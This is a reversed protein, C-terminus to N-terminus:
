TTSFVKEPASTWSVRSGFPNLRHNIDNIALGTRAHHRANATPVGPRLHGHSSQEVRMAKAESQMNGLQRASGVHYQRLMPHCDEDMAAEPVAMLTARETCGRRRPWIEPLVFEGSVDRPVFLINLRQGARAHADGDDPFTRDARFALGPPEVGQCVPYPGCGVILLIDQYDVLDSGINARMQRATM